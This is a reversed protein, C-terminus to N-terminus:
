REVNHVEVGVTYQSSEGGNAFPLGGADAGYSVSEGRCFVPAARRILKEAAEPSAAAGLVSEEWPGGVYVGGVIVYVKDM